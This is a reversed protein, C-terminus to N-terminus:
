RFFLGAPSRMVAGLRGKGEGFVGEGCRGLCAM